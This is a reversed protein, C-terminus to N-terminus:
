DSHRIIKIDCCDKHLSSCNDCRCVKREVCISTFLSNKCIFLCGCDRCKKVIKM